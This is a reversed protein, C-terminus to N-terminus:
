LDAALQEMARKAEMADQGSLRRFAELVEATLDLTPDILWQTTLGDWIAAMQVAFREPVISPHALGEAQRQVLAAAMHSRIMELHTRAYDHGPHAPDAADAMVKVYLRRAHPHDQADSTARSIGTPTDWTTLSEAVLSQQRADIEVMTAAFLHDKSPYHYLVTAESVGAEAAVQAMTLDVHGAATVLDAAATIIEGRRASGTAYPGRRRKETKM